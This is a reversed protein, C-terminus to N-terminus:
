SSRSPPRHRPDAVKRSHFPGSQNWRVAMLRTLEHRDHTTSCTRAVSPIFGFGHSKKTSPDRMVVCGVVEGWHELHGKLSEETTM